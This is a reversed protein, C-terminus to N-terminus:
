AARSPVLSQAHGQFTDPKKADSMRPSESHLCTGFFGFEEILVHLLEQFSLSDTENARDRYSPIRASAFVPGRIERTQL